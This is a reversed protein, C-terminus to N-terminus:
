SLVVGEKGNKKENKESVEQHSKNEIRQNREKSMSVTWILGLKLPTRYVGILVHNGPIYGHSSSCIPCNLLSVYETLLM